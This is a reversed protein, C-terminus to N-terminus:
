RDLEVVFPEEGPGNCSANIFHVGQKTIEGHSEHIHGFVHCALDLEKVRNLLDECGVRSGRSTKDLVRAPPTHTLLIDTDDPIDAWKAALQEGRPLNFAMDLFKPQWPSGFIKLGDVEESEHELYTAHELVDAAEDRNQEFAYDCNGAIVFKRDHPLAGLFADFTEVDEIGGGSTLDGAFLLIDGDPVELKEHRGHTDSFAILRM